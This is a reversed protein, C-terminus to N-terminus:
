FPGKFAERLAEDVKAKTVTFLDNLSITDLPTMAFLEFDEMNLAKAIHELMQPSPFRKGCEIQSIYNTAAGAKEALQTQSLRTRKRAAKLNQALIGQLRTM